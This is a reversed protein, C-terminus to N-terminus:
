VIWLALVSTHVISWSYVLPLNNLRLYVYWQQYVLHSHYDDHRCIGALFRVVVSGDIVFNVLGSGSIAIHLATLYEQLTLHLFSHGTCVNLSITKKM